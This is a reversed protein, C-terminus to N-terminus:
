ESERERKVESYRERKKYRERDIDKQRYVKQRGTETERERDILKGKERYKCTCIYVGVCACVNM